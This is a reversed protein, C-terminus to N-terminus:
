RIKVRQHAEIGISFAVAIIGLILITLAIIGVDGLFGGILFSFFGFSKKLAERFTWIFFAVIFLCVGFGMLFGGAFARNRHKNIEEINSM